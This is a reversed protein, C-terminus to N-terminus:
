ASCMGRWKHPALGVQAGHILTVGNLFAQEAEARDAYTVVAICELDPRNRALALLLERNVTQIGGKSSDWRNMVFFIRQKM